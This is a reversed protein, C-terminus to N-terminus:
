RLTGVRRNVLFTIIRRLETLFILYGALCICVLIIKNPASVLTEQAAWADQRSEPPIFRIITSTTRDSGAVWSMLAFGSIMLVAALTIGIPRYKKPHRYALFTLGGLAVILLTGVLELM